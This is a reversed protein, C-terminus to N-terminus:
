RIIPSNILSGGSEWVKIKPGCLWLYYRDWFAHNNISEDQYVLFPGLAFADGIDVEEGDSVYGTGRRSEAHWKTIEWAGFYICVLTVFIALM